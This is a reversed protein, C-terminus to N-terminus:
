KVHSTETRLPTNNSTWPTLMRVHGDDLNDKMTPSRPKKFYVITNQTAESDGVLNSTRTKRCFRSRLIKVFIILVIGIAIISILSYQIIDHKKHDDFPELSKLQKLKSKIKSADYTLDMESATEVIPTDINTIIIQDKSERTQFVMIGSINLECNEGYLINSGKTWVLDHHGKCNVSVETTKNFFMYIAKPSVQFVEQEPCRISVSQCKNSEKKNLIDSECSDIKVPVGKCILMDFERCEEAEYIEEEKYALTVKQM